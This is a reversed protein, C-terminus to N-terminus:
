IDKDVLLQEWNGGNLYVQKAEIAGLIYEAQRQQDTLSVSQAEKAKELALLQNVFKFEEPFENSIQLMTLIESGKDKILESMNRGSKEGLCLMLGYWRGKYRPATIGKPSQDVNKKSFLNM